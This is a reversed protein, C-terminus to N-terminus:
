HGSQVHTCSISRMCSVASLFVCKVPSAQRDLKVPIMMTMMMVKIHSFHSVFRVETLVEQGGTTFNLAFETCLTL